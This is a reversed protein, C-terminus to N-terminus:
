GDGGQEILHSDALRPVLQEVHDLAVDFDVDCEDTLKKAIERTTAKGDCARWVVLATQNLHYTNGNVPDFLLSAGELEEETLDNRRPPVVIATDPTTWYPANM